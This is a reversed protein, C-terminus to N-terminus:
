YKWNKLRKALNLFCSEYQKAASLVPNRWKSGVEVQGDDSEAFLNASFGRDCGDYAIYLVTVESVNTAKAKVYLRGYSQSLMEFEIGDQEITKKVQFEPNITIPSSKM